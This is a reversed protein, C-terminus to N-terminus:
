PRLARTSLPGPAPQKAILSDISPSSGNQTGTLICPYGFHGGYQNVDFEAQLNVGRPLIMKAVYPSLPSMIAPLNATTLAQTTNSWKSCGYIGNTWTVTILRKPFGGSALGADSGGDAAFAENNLIPLLAAGGGIAKLLARRSYKEKLIM